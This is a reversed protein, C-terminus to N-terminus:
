GMCCRGLNGFVEYFAESHYSDWIYRFEKETTDYTQGVLWVRTPGVLSYAMSEEGSCRSKGGRTGAIASRFRADSLHIPMQGSHPSYGKREFWGWKFAKLASARENPTMPQTTIARRTPM